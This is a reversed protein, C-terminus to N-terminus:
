RAPCSKLSDGGNGAGRYLGRMDLAADGIEGNLDRVHGLGAKGLEYAEKLEAQPM